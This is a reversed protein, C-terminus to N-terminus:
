QEEPAQESAKVEWQIKGNVVIRHNHSTRTDEHDDTVLVALVLRFNCAPRDALKEELREFFEIEGLAAMVRDAPKPKCGPFSTFRAMSWLKDCDSVDGLKIEVGPEPLIRTPKTCPVPKVKVSGHIMVPTLRWVAEDIAKISAREVEDHYDLEDDQCEFVWPEEKPTVLELLQDLKAELREMWGGLKAECREVAQMLTETTAAM